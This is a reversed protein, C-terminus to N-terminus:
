AKFGAPFIIWDLNPTHSSPRIRSSLLTLSPLPYLQVKFKSGVITIRAEPNAEDARRPYAASFAEVKQDALVNYENPVWICTGISVDRHWEWGKYMRRLLTPSGNLFLRRRDCSTYLPFMPVSHTHPLERPHQRLYLRDAITSNRPPQAGIVPQLRTFM